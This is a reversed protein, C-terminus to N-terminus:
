KIENFELLQWNKKEQPISGIYQIRIHFKTRMMAGFANESDVFSTINFTKKDDEIMFKFEAPFVASAPSKLYDKVFEQSITYAKDESPYDYSDDCSKVYFGIAIVAIIITILCGKTNKKQVEKEEMIM